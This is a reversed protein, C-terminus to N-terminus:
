KMQDTRMCKWLPVPGQHCIGVRRDNIKVWSTTSGKRTFIGDKESHYNNYRIIDADSEITLKSKSTSM